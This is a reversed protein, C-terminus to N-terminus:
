PILLMLMTLSKIPQTHESVISNPKKFVHKKAVKMIKKLTYKKWPRLELLSRALSYGAEAEE